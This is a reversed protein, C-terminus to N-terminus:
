AFREVKDKVDNDNAFKENETLIILEDIFTIAATDMAEIYSELVSLHLQKGILKRNRQWSEGEDYLLGYLFGNKDGGFLEKSFGAKRIIDPQLNLLFHSLEPDTAFFLKFNPLIPWIYNDYGNNIVKVKHYIHKDNETDLHEFLQMAQYKKSFRNIRIIKWIYNSGKVVAYAVVLATTLKKIEQTNIELIMNMRERLGM